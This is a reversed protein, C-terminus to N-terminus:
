LNALLIVVIFMLRDFIFMIFKHCYNCRNTETNIEHYHKKIIKRQKTPPLHISGEM